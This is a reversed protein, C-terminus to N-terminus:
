NEKEKQYTRSKMNSEQNNIQSLNDLKDGREKTLQLTKNIDM